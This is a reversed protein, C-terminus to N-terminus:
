KNVATLTTIFGVVTNDGDSEEEESKIYLCVFLNLAHKEQQKVCWV